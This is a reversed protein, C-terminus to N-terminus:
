FHHTDRNIHGNKKLALITLTGTKGQLENAEEPLDMAVHILVVVENKKIEINIGTCPM